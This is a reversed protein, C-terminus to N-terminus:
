GQSMKFKPSPYISFSVIYFEGGLIVWFCGLCRHQQEERGRVSEEGLRTVVDETGM